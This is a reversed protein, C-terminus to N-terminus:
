YKGPVLDKSRTDAHVNSSFISIVFVTIEMILSDSIYHIRFFKMIGDEIVPLTIEGWSITGEKLWYLQGEVAAVLFYKSVTGTYHRRYFRMLTEIKGPLDRIKGSIAARPQLVGDPTEVNEAEAAFRMDPNLGIDNQRLGLFSPVYLDADYANLRFQAM